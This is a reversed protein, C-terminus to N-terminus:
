CARRRTEDILARAAIEFAGFQDERRRGDIVTPNDPDRADTVNWTNGGPNIELCYLRGTAQERTIDVAQLPVEPIAAYTRAAFALVKPDYCYQLERPGAEVNTAVGTRTRDRGTRDLDERPTLAIRKLAYLPRGFLTLVRYDETREGSDIFKQVLMAGKAGPHDPAHFMRPLFALSATRVLEVGRGATAAGFADPKVIVFRGWEAEGYVRGPKLVSWSPVRIGAKALRRLQESKPLFQGCFVAGRQPRFNSLRSPCFTLTPREALKRYVQPPPAVDPTIHVHIDSSLAIIRRGIKEFDSPNVWGPRFVLIINTAGVRGAARTM